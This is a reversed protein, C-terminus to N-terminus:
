ALQKNKTVEGPLQIRSSEERSMAQTSTTIGMCTAASYNRSDLGRHQRGAIVHAHSATEEKQGKM